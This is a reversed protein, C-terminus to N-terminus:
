WRNLWIISCSQIFTLRKEIKAPYKSLIVVNENELTNKLSLISEIHLSSIDATSSTTRGIHLSENWDKTYKLTTSFDRHHSICQINNKDLAKKLDSYGREIESEKPKIASM